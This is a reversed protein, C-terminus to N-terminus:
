TELLLLVPTPHWFDREGDAKFYSFLLAGESLLFDFLLLKFTFLLKM